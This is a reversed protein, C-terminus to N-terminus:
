GPGRAREVADLIQRESAVGTFSSSITGDTALVYVTPLLDVRWRAADARTALAIPYTLGLRRAASAVSGLPADDLSVGVVRDGRPAIRAHVRSLAPGEQRCAPCWTAWFALVTVHGRGGSLDLTGGPEVPLELAPALTGDPLGGGSSPTLLWLLIAGGLLLFPWSRLM